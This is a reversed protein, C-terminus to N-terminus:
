WDVYNRTYCEVTGGYLEVKRNTIVTTRSIRISQNENKEHAAPKKKLWILVTPQKAYPTSEFDWQANKKNREQDKKLIKTTKRLILINNANHELIWHFQINTIIRYWNRLNTALKYIQLSFFRFHLMFVLSFPKSIIIAITTVLHEYCM